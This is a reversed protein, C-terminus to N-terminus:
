ANEVTALCVGSIVGAAAALSVILEPILFRRHGDIQKAHAGAFHHSGIETIRGDPNAVVSGALPALFTFLLAPKSADVILHVMAAM